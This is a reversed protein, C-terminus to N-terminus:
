RMLTIKKTTLQNNSILRTFYIGSPVDAGKTNKGDWSISYSIGEMQYENVLTTVERGMLDYIKLQVDGSSEIMYSIETEPNFPNPYNTLLTYNKAIEIDIYSSRSVAKLDVIEFQGFYTFLNDDPHIILLSTTNGHSYSDALFSNGDFRFSFNEDHKLTMQIGGIFGNGKLKVNGNEIILEANDADTGRVGPNLIIDVIAVIDLVDVDGSNNMDAHCIVDDPLVESALVHAVVAVIDLVDLSGDGTVDGDNICEESTVVIDDISRPYVVYESQYYHVIGTISAFTDGTNPLTWDGSFFYDDVKTQGSGDDIFWSNFENVSLVEVDSLTVLMGEYMEASSSCDLGLDSTFLETPEVVCDCPMVSYSSVDELQTTGYFENVDATLTIEDNLSLMEFGFDVYVYIGSFGPDNIDQIFFNPYTENDRVATVIGTVTVSQGTLPSPFCDDGEGMSNSYQVDYISIPQVVSITIFDTSMDTNADFVTLSFVLESPEAPASFTVVSEESSSLSVTTGAEQTWLYGIINSESSYSASGDLTVFAGPEVMQDEGAIAVPGSANEFDSIFRPMLQYGSDFPETFDYQGAVGTVNQPWTPEPSGDIETDSDIRMTTMASGDDTVTLNSSSGEDPWDGSVIGVSLIQILESEYDEGNTELDSVTILQTAPLVGPGMNTVGDESEVIVEFKGNYEDTVGMVYVEDGVALDLMIGPAFLILGGTDDQIAFESNSSQFNPSVVIGQVAVCQDLGLARAEAITSLGSGCVIVSTEDTDSVFEGDYVTVQFILEGSTEPATFTTIPSESDSLSVTTGSIQTWEYFVIEGDADFSGSADLTVEDGSGVTQNDGADAVPPINANADLIQNENIAGPTINSVSWAFNDLGDRSISLGELGEYFSADVEEMPNGNADNMSGEYAVADVIVGDVSLEIGDPSGNQIANTAPFGDSFDVNPVSPVGIVYFGFGDTEDSLTINGLSFTNYSSNNNGNILSVVVNNYTGAEGVLELYESSDTGPQDYDIENILLQSSSLSFLLIILLIKKM